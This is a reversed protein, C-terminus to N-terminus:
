LAGSPPITSASGTASNTPSFRNSITPVRAKLLPSLPPLQTPPKTTTASYSTPMSFKAPSLPPDVQALPSAPPMQPSSAPSPSSAPPSPPAPNTSASQTSATPTAKSTTPAPILPRHRSRATRHPRSSRLHQLHHRSRRDMSRLLSLHIARNRQTPAPTGPAAITLITNSILPLSTSWRRNLPSALSLNWHNPQPCGGPLPVTSDTTYSFADPTHVAAFILLCLAALAIPRKM